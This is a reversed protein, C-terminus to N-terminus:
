VALATAEQNALQSNGGALTQWDASNIMSPVYAAGNDWTSTVRGDALRNTSANYAFSDAIKIGAWGAFGTVAARAKDLTTLISAQGNAVAEMRQAGTAAVSNRYGTASAVNQEAEYRLMEARSQASAANAMGSTTPRSLSAAAVDAQLQALTKPSPNLISFKADAVATRESTLSDVLKTLTDRIKEFADTIVKTAATAADAVTAFEPALALMVAYANRGAETALDLGSVVDRFALKNAPMAVGVLALGKAVNVATDALRETDTWFSDYYVQSATTLKDMGGFTDALQSAFDGGGLSVTLLNHDLVGLWQNVTVLSGSLRELTVSSTEGARAFMELGPASATAMDDAMGVFLAVLQETTTGAAIDIAKTYAAIKDTALGLTQAMQAVSTRAGSFGAMLANATSPDVAATETWHRDQRFWGGEQKLNAYSEGSFGGNAALTGRAYKPQGWALGPALLAAM